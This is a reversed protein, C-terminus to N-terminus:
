EPLDPLGTARTKADRGWPPKRHVGHVRRADAMAKKERRLVLSVANPAHLDSEAVWYFTPRLVIGFAALEGNSSVREEYGGDDGRRWRPGSPDVPSVPVPVKLIEFFEIICARFTGFMRNFELESLRLKKLDKNSSTSTSLALAVLAPATGERVPTSDLGHEEVVLRAKNPTRSIWKMAERAADEQAKLEEFRVLLRAGWAPDYERGFVQKFRRLASKQVGDRIEQESGYSRFRRAERSNKTKPAPKPPRAPSRPM